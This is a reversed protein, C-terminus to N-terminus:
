VAPRVVYTRQRSRSSYHHTVFVKGQDTGGGLLATLCIQKIMRMVSVAPLLCRGPYTQVQDTRGIELDQEIALVKVWKDNLTNQDAQLKERGTKISRASATLRRRFVELELHDKPVEFEDPGLSIDEKSEPM